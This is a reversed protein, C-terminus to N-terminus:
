QCRCGCFLSVDRGCDPGRGSAHDFLDACRRARCAVPQQELGGVASARGDACAAAHTVGGPLCQLAAHPLREVGVPLTPSPGRVRSSMVSEAHRPIAARTVRRKSSPERESALNGSYQGSPGPDNPRRLMIDIVQKAAKAQSPPLTKCRRRWSASQQIGRAAPLSQLHQRQTRHSVPDRFLALSLLM